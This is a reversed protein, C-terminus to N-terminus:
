ANPWEPLVERFASGTGQLFVHTEDIRHPYLLRSAVVGWIMSALMAAGGIGGIAGSQSNIAVVILVVSLVFLILAGFMGKRRRDRHSPCLPVQMIVRKRVIMAVIVYILLGPLIIMLYLAPHHWYFTRKVRTGEAPENCRVCRDPFLATKRMVLLKKKRWMEGIAEGRALKAVAMPKCQACVYFGSFSMLESKPITQSCEACREMEPLAPPTFPTQM